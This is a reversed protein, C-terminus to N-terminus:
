GPTPRSTLGLAESYPVRPNMVRTHVNIVLLVDKPSEDSTQPLLLRDTTVTFGTIFKDDEMLVYFPDEGEQPRDPVEQKGKPMRLADFLVKIRNDIDGGQVVFHGPNDRRLFLVDLACTVTNSESILPVFRYGERNFQNMPHDQWGHALQEKLIAHQHWLEKLQGHFERRIAHKVKVDASEQQSPLPGKYILRFELDLGEVGPLEPRVYVRTQPLTEERVELVSYRDLM